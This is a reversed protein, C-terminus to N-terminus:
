QCLDKNQPKELPTDAATLWSAPLTVTHSVRQNGLGTVSGKEVFAWQQDGPIVLLHPSQTPLHLTRLVEDKAPDVVTMTWRTKRAADASPARGLVFLLGDQAFLGVAATAREQAGYVDRVSDVGRLEPLVIRHRFKQPLASELRRLDGGALDVEWIGPDEGLFLFYGRGESVTLYNQANLYFRRAPDDAPIWKILQLNGPDDLSVRAFVSVWRGSFHQYDGYVLLHEGDTAWSDLSKLGPEAGALVNGVQVVPQFDASLQQLEGDGGELLYGDRWSQLLSLRGANSPDVDASGLAFSGPADDLPYSLVAKRAVDVLQLSSGDPSWAGSFVWYPAPDLATRRCEQASLTDAPGFGLVVLAAILLTMISRNFNM